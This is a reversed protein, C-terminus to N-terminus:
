EHGGDKARGYCQTRPPSCASLPTLFGASLPSIKIPPGHIIAHSRQAGGIVRGWERLTQVVKSREFQDLLFSFFVGHVSNEGFPAIQAAHCAGCIDPINSYTPFPQILHRARNVSLFGFRYGASISRKGLSSVM